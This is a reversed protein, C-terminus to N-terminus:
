ICAFVGRGRYRLENVEGTPGPMPEPALATRAQAAYYRLLDIAERVEAVSDALTKGGERALLAILPGRRSEILDGARELAVARQDVPTAAWRPFGATAAAM